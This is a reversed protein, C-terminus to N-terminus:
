GKISYWEISPQNPKEEKKDLKILISILIITNIVTIPLVFEM